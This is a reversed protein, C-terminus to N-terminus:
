QYLREHTFQFREQIQPVDARATKPKGDKGKLPTITGRVSSTYLPWDPTAFRAEYRRQLAQDPFIYEVTDYHGAKMNELHTQFGLFIRPLTKQTLEVELAVFRTGHSIIADPRKLNPLDLDLEGRFDFPLTLASRSIVACQVSLNHRVMSSLVKTRTMRYREAKDSLMAAMEKGQRSLFYVQEFLFPVQVVQVLRSKRLSVFFRSQSARQLGLAHSLVRATSYNFELLWQVVFQCKELYREHNNM